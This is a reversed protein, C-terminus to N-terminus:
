QDISSVSKKQIFTILEAVDNFMDLSLEEEDCLIDFKDEILVILNLIQLSDLALDDILSTKEDVVKVSDELIVFDDSQLIELIGSM